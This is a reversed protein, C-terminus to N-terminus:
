EIRGDYLESLWLCYTLLHAHSHNLLVKNIFVPLQGTTQQGKNQLLLSTGAQTLADRSKLSILNGSFPSSIFSFSFNYLFAMSSPLLRSTHGQPPLHGQELLPGFSSTDIPQLFNFALMVWKKM